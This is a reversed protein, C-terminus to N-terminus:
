GFPAGAVEGRTGFYLTEGAHLGFRSAQDPRLRTGTYDVEVFEFGAARVRDAFDRGYRRVNHEDWCLRRRDDPDTLSPDEFTTALADDLSVQLWAWGGPRLVRHLEGLAAADRPVVNLVHSCLVIDFRADAFPLGTVDLLVDVDEQELDATTYAAHPAASVLRRLVPEPAFHLVRSTGSRFLGREEAFLWFLRHRPHSACTPCLVNRYTDSWDLFAPIGTECCPCYCATEPQHSASPEGARRRALRKLISFM